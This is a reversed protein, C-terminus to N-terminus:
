SVCIISVDRRFRHHITAVAQSQMSVCVGRGRAVTPARHGDFPDKVYAFFRFAQLLHQVLKLFFANVLVVRYVVDPMNSRGNHPTDEQLRLRAERYVEGM